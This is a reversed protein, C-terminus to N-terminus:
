VFQFAADGFQPSKEVPPSLGLILDHPASQILDHQFALPEAPPRGAAARQRGNTPREGVRRRSREAVVVIRGAIGQEFEEFESALRPSRRVLVISVVEEVIRIRIMVMAEHMVVIVVTIMIVIMIVIEAVVMVGVMIVVVVIVVVIVEIGIESTIEVQAAVDILDAVM